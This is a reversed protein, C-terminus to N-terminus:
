IGNVSVEYEDCISESDVFDAVYESDANICVGSFSEYYRCKECRTNKYEVSVDIM